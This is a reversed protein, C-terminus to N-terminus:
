LDITGNILQQIKEARQMYKDTYEKLLQKQSVNSEQKIIELMITLSSSYLHLAQKFQSNRDAQVAAELIQKARDFQAQRPPDLSFRKENPSTVQNSYKKVIASMAPYDLWINTITEPRYTQPIHNEGHLRFYIAYRIQPSTNPAVCHALQYHSIVIDGANVKLQIPQQLKSAVKVKLHKLSETQPDGGNEVTIDRHFLKEPGGAEVIADQLLKHSGPYVCLNGSLNDKCDSLYVGVLMTFNEIGENGVKSKLIPNPKKNKKKRILQHFKKPKAIHLTINM